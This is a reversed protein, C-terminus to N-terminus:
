FTNVGNKYIKKFQELTYTKPKWKFALGGAKNSENIVPSNLKNNNKNKM